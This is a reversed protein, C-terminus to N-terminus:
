QKSCSIKLFSSWFTLQGSHPLVFTRLSMLQALIDSFISLGPNSLLNRSQIALPASFDFGPLADHGVQFILHYHDKLCSPM